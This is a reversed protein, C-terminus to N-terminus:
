QQDDLIEAIAQLDAQAKNIKELSEKSSFNKKATTLAKQAALVKPKLVVIIESDLKNDREASDLTKKSAVDPKPSAPFKKKPKYAKNYIENLGQYNGRVLIQALALDSKTGSFSIDEQYEDLIGLTESTNKMVVQMDAQGPTSKGGFAVWFLLIAVLLGGGIMLLIQKRHNAPQPMQYPNPATPYGFAPQQPVQQPQQPNM